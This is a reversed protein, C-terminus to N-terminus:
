SIDHIQASVFEQVVPNSSNRFESATGCEIIKGGSLMAIRDGTEFASILDHTVVISTLKLTDQLTRILRDIRRSMVPDLGSTPEDYLIFDPETIIARALATRKRMGGSIDSPKKEAAYEMGVLGLTKEVKEAIEANSLKKKQERLPLAVNDEVNMWNILAGSQFLVGFRKRFQDLERIGLASVETGDVIVRGGDAKHLGIMHRLLVSKGSGSPGVIFFTEGQKIQLSVGKLIHIGLLYKHVNDFSIM